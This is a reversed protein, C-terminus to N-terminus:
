RRAGGALRLPGILAESQRGIDSSRGSLEIWVAPCDAPVEVDFVGASVPTSSLNQGAAANVCRAVWVLGSDAIDGSAPADFRYTGPALLALQRALVGEREGNHMVYLRGDRREAIGLVSSTLEWNFPPPARKDRFGPDYLGSSAAPDAGAVAAWIARARRYDGAEVLSRILTALWPAEAGRQAGGLELVLDANAPQAALANLVAERVSPNREFIARMPARAERQKAFQALFPAISRVGEPAFRALDAVESLGRMDNARLYHLSLFYRAPLSRPDRQRAALFAREADGRNGALENRIGAVVFPEAALPAAISAQRLRDFVLNSVDGGTAASKGIAVMALGIQVDPHSSWLRAARNPDRGALSNVAANRIAIAGIALAAGIVVSAKFFLPGAASGKSTM